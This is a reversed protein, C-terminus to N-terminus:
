NVCQNGVVSPCVTLVAHPSLTPLPALAPAFPRAYSTSSAVWLRWCPAAWSSVPWRQRTRGCIWCSYCMVDDCAAVVNVCTCTGAEWMDYDIHCLFVFLRQLWMGNEFLVHKFYMDTERWEVSTLTDFIFDLNRWLGPYCGNNVTLWSNMGAPFIHTRWACNSVTYKPLETLTKVNMDDFYVHVRAFNSRMFRGIDADSSTSANLQYKKAM